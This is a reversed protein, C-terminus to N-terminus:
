LKFVESFVIYIYMSECNLCFLKSDKIRLVPEYTEGCKLCKLDKM